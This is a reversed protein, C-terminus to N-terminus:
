VQWVRDFAKEQDLFVLRGNLGCSWAGEIVGQVWVTGDQILRGKVGGHQEEGLVQQAVYQLRSVLVKTVLKRDIDLM